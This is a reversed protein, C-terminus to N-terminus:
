KVIEVHEWVAGGPGIKLEAEAVVAGETLAETTCTGASPAGDDEGAGDDDGHGGSMDDGRSSVVHSSGGDGSSDDGQDDDSGEGAPSASTCRLETSETVKGSVTSGDKLKITLVGEKFSAVTGATEDPSTPETPTTTGTPGTVSAPSGFKLVRSRHAPRLTCGHHAHHHRCASKSKHADAAGPAALALLTASAGAALLMRKM